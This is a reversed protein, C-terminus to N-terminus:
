FCPELAWGARPSPSLEGSLTSALTQGAEALYFLIFDQGLGVVSVLTSEGTPLNNGPLLSAGEQGSFLDM